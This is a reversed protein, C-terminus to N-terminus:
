WQSPAGAGSSHLFHRAIQQHDISKYRARTDNRLNVSWHLRRPLLNVLPNPEMTQNWTPDPMSTASLSSSPARWALGLAYTAYSWSLQDRESGRSYENFWHCLLCQAAPARLDVM